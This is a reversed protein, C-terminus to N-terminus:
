KKHFNPFPIQIEPLKYVERARNILKQPGLWLILSIDQNREITYMYMCVTYRPDHVTDQSGALPEHKSNAGRRSHIGYNQKSPNKETKTTYYKERQERKEDKM